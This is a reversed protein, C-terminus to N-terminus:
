RHQELTVSIKKGKRQIEETRTYVWSLTPTNVLVGKKGNLSTSEVKRCISPAGTSAQSYKGPV